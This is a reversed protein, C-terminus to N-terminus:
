RVYARSMPTIFPLSHSLSKKVVRLLARGRQSLQTDQVYQQYCGQVRHRRQRELLAQRAWIHKYKCAAIIINWNVRFSQPAISNVKAALHLHACAALKIRTFGRCVRVSHPPNQQKWSGDAYSTGDALRRGLVIAAASIRACRSRYTMAWRWVLM